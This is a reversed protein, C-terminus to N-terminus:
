KKEPIARIMLGNLIPRTGMFDIDLTGDKVTVSPISHVYARGIGGTVKVPDFRLLVPKSEVGVDFVRYEAETEMRPEAFILVVRYRGNPVPVRVSDIGSWGSNLIPDKILFNRVPAGGVYGERGENWKRMPLWVRGQPDIHVTGALNFYHEVIKPEEPQTPEQDPVDISVPILHNRARATSLLIRLRGIPFRQEMKLNLITGSDFGIPKDTLFVARVPQGAQTGASWLTRPNSDIAHQIPLGPQSDDSWAEILEVRHHDEPSQKDSITLSVDGVSFRGGSMRGPGSRPLSPDPLAEVMVGTIDTLSTEFKISYADNLPNEGMITISGDGHDSQVLTAGQTSDFNSIIAPVYGVKVLPPQFSPVRELDPTPHATTASLRFRGLTYRKREPHLHKFTFVLKTSSHDPLPQDPAFALWHDAGGNGISWGTSDGHDFVGEAEYESQEYDAKVAKLKVETLDDPQEMSSEKLELTTLTFNGNIARGPGSRPLTEDALTELKFAKIGKLNTHITVTFIEQDVPDGEALLSGDPLKVFTTGRESRASVIDLVYWQGIDGLPHESTILPPFPQEANEAHLSVSVILWAMCTLAFQLEKM